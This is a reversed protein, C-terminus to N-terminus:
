YQIFFLQVEEWEVKNLVETFKLSAYFSWSSSKIHCWCKNKFSV